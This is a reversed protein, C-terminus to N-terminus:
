DGPNDGPDTDYIHYIEATPLAAASASVVHTELGVVQQAFPGVGQTIILLMAGFIAFM